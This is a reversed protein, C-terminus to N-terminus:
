TECNDPSNHNTITLDDALQELEEQCQKELHTELVNSEYEPEPRLEQKTNQLLEFQILFNRHHSIASSKQLASLPM